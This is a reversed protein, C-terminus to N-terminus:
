GTRAPLYEHINEKMFKHAKYLNAEVTRESILLVSAIEKNSMGEIRSMEYVNKCQCPLRDILGVVRASLDNYNVTENTCESIGRIDHLMCAIKEMRIANNRLHEMVALKIARSLYHVFSVKLNLTGRREWISVFVNHIISEATGRDKTFSIAIACLKESYRKYIEEFGEATTIDPKEAGQKTKTFFM